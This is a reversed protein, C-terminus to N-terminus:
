SQQFIIKTAKLLHHNGFDSRGNIYTINMMNPLDSRSIWIVDDSDLHANSHKSNKMFELLVEKKTSKTEDPRTKNRIPEM